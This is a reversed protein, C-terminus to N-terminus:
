FIIPFIRLLFTSPLANLEVYLSTKLLKLYSTLKIKLLVFLLSHRLCNICKKFIEFKQKM